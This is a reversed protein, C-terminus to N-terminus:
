YLCGMGLDRYNIITEPAEAIPRNYAEGLREQTHRVCFLQDVGRNPPTRHALFLFCYSTLESQQWSRM